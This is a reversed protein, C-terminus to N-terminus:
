ANVRGESRGGATLPRCKRRRQQTNHQKNLSVIVGKTIRAHRISEDLKGCLDACEGDDIRRDELSLSLSKIVGAADLSVDAATAVAKEVDFDADSEFGPLDAAHEAIWDTGGILLQLLERQAEPCAQRFVARFRMFHLDRNHHYARAPDKGIGLIDALQAVPLLNREHLSRLTEQLLTTESEMAAREM